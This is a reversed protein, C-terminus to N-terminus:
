LDEPPNPLPMWHTPSVRISYYDGVFFCGNLNTGICVISIGANNKYHLIVKSEKCEDIPYWVGHKFDTM